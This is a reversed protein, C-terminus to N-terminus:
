SMILQMNSNLYIMFIQMMLFPWAEKQFYASHHLPWRREYFVFFLDTLLFSPFVSPPNKIERLNLTKNKTLVINRM